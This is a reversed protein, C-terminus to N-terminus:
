QSRHFEGTNGRLAHIRFAMYEDTAVAPCALVHGPKECLLVCPIHCQIQVGLPYPFGRRCSIGHDITIRGPAFGQDRSSNFPGAHEDNRKIIGVM